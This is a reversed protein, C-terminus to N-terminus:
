FHFQQRLLLPLSRPQNTSAAIVNPPEAGLGGSNIAELGGNLESRVLDTQLVALDPVNRSIKRSEAKTGVFEGTKYRRCCVQIARGWRSTLDCELRKIFTEAKGCLEQESVSRKSPYQATYFYHRAFPAIRLFLSPDSKKMKWSPMIVIVIRRFVFKFVAFGKQTDTNRVQRARGLRRPSCTGGSLSSARLWLTSSRTSATIFLSCMGPKASATTLSPFIRLTRAYPRASTFDFIGAVVFVTKRIPEMLLCNTAVAIMISTSSFLSLSSSGTLLYRFPVGLSHFSMVM